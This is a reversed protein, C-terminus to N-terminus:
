TGTTPLLTGYLSIDRTGAVGLALAGIECVIEGLPPILVGHPSIPLIKKARIAATAEERDTAGIVQQGWVAYSGATPAVSHGTVATVGLDEEHRDRSDAAYLGRWANQSASAQGIFNQGEQFPKFRLRAGSATPFTVAQYQKQEGYAGVYVLGAPAATLAPTGVEIIAECPGDSVEGTVVGAGTWTQNPTKATDINADPQADFYNSVGGVTAVFYYTAGGVLTRYINYGIGGAGLVPTTVQIVRNAATPTMNVSAVSLAGERRFQDIPVIKYSYAGTTGLGDTAAGATLTPAAPAAPPASAQYGFLFYRRVVRLYETAAALNHYIGGTWLLAKGAPVKWAMLVSPPLTDTILVPTVPLSAKIQWPDGVPVISVGQLLAALPGLLGLYEAIGAGATSDSVGTKQATTAM